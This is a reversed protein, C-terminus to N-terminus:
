ITLFLQLAPRAMAWKAKGLSRWHTGADDSPSDSSSLVLVWGQPTALWVKKKSSVLPTVDQLKQDPLTFLKYSSRDPGPPPALVLLPYAVYLNSEEALDMASLVPTCLDLDAM